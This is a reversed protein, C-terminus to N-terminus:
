KSPAIRANAWSPQHPVFHESVYYLFCTTLPNVTRFIHKDIASRRVSTLADTSRNYEYHLLGAFAPTLLASFNATSFYRSVNFSWKNKVMKEILTNTGGTLRSYKFEGPGRKEWGCNTTDKAYLSGLCRFTACIATVGWFLICLVM